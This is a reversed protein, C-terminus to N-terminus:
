TLAPSRKQKRSRTVLGILGLGGAFLAFAPPLPTTATDETSTVFVPQGGFFGSLNQQVGPTEVVTFVNPFPVFNGPESELNVTFLTSDYWIRDSVSGDPDLLDVETTPIGYNPVFNTVINAPGEAGECISISINFITVLTDSTQCPAASASESLCLSGVFLMGVLAFRKM